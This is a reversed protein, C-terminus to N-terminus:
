RDLFDDLKKILDDRDKPMESLDSLPEHHMIAAAEEFRAAGSKDRLRREWLKQRFVFDSGIITEIDSHKPFWGLEDRARSIDASLAYPEDLRKAEYRVPCKLGTMREIVAIIELVTRDIGTGINYPGLVSGKLLKEVSMAAALAVDTVHVYDRLATGDRTAYHSGLIPVYSQHGLAADVARPVLSVDGDHDEGLGSEFDAGAVTFLRLSVWNMSAVQGFDATMNEIANLCAGYPNLPNTAAQEAVLLASQEGYVSAGSMMCLNTVAHRRMAELLTLTATAITGYHSLPDKTSRHDANSTACHVVAIPSYQAFVESLREADRLDGHELPGFRVYDAKGSTLNDFAVPLYGIKSLAQAVHSGVYGAGGAVLVNGRSMNKQRSRWVTADSM